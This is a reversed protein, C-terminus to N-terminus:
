QNLDVLYGVVTIVTPWDENLYASGTWFDINLVQGADVYMVPKSQFSYRALQYTLAVDYYADPNNPVEFMSKLVWSSPNSKDWANLRLSHVKGNPLLSVTGYFDTVVLRKGAPIAPLNFSCYNLGCPSGVGPTASVLQQDPIRGPEDINKVIAPRVQAAATGASLMLVAAVAVFSVCFVVIRNGHSWRM